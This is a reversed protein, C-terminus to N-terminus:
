LHLGPRDQLAHRQRPDHQAPAAGRSRHRDRARRYRHHARHLLVSRAKRSRSLPLYRQHQLIGGDGDCPYAPDYLHRRSWRYQQDAVHVGMTALFAGLNALTNVRLALFKGREDLALAVDSVNDRAHHDAVFSESREATWKVPRGVRQAAWLVLALEPFASGKMGFGGGVDPSILRFRNAPLKFINSALEVRARHVGQLGAYLTYRQDREDYVGLATRGEM